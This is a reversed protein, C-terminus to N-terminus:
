RVRGCYLFERKTDVLRWGGVYQVFLEESYMM